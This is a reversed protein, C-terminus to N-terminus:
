HTPPSQTKHPFVMSAQNSMSIPVSLVCDSQMHHPVMALGWGEGNTATKPITSAWPQPPVVVDRSPNFAM